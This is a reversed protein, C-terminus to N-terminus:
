NWCSEISSQEEPSGWKAFLEKNTPELTDLWLKVFLIADNELNLEISNKVTEVIRQALKQKTM